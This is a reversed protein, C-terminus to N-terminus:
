VMAGENDDDLEKANMIDAFNVGKLRDQAQKVKEEPSTAKFENFTKLWEDETLKSKTDYAKLFERIDQENDLIAKAQRINVTFDKSFQSSCITFLEETAYGNIGIFYRMDELRKLAQKCKFVGMSFSKKLYKENIKLM